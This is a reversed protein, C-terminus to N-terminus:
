RLWTLTVFVTVQGPKGTVKRPVLAHSAPTPDFLIM